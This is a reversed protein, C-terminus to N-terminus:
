SILCLLREQLLNDALEREKFIYLFFFIQPDIDMVYPGLWLLHSVIPM